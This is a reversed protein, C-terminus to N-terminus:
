IPFAMATPIGLKQYTSLSTDLFSLASSEDTGESIEISDHVGDGDSDVEHNHTSDQFAATNNNDPDFRVQVRGDANGINPDNDNDDLYVPVGDADADIYPDRGYELVDPVDDGDSDIDLYDPASDGDSDLFSTALDPDTGEAIEVSDPVGDGDKDTMAMAHGSVLLCAIAGALLINSPKKGAVTNEIEQSLLCKRFSM